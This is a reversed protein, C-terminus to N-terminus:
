SKKADDREGEFDGEQTPGTPQEPKPQPKAKADKIKQLAVEVAKELQPDKGAIRDAPTIDVAIDPKCGNREQNSGDKNFFGSMPIRWNTGDSLRIDFTGIVAGPTQTGVITAMGLTKMAHPFVEADSYSRENILVVIPRDWYLTPQGVKQGTRMRIEAYPKRSLIDILQQHINGGGNDRVDIVLAKCAQVQPTALENQFQQLNPPMMGAIHIYAVQNSSIRTTVSRNKLVWQQYDRQQKQQGSEPTIKVERPNEGEPNDAVVLAIEVGTTGELLAYANDKAAIMKGNIRFIFDGKRIWAKDAPGQADVEDVRLRQRTDRFVEPTISMGLLGTNFQRARITSAFAGSHSASLEGVMRNLYYLYEERTGCSDVLQRYQQVLADWDKGHFKPDYFGQGYAQAAEDFARLMEEKESIEISAIFPIQRGANIAVPAPALYLQGGGRATGGVYFINRGDASFKGYQGQAVTVEGSGMIDTVVVSTEISTQGRVIRNFVILRGDPSFSPVEEIETSGYVRRQNSGDASMIWIDTNGGRASDFAIQSGDPSFCADDDSQPANTLQTAAGGQASVIWIDRNGSRESTFVLKSGDPSWSMFADLAPDNTIQRLGKGDTGVVFIDTNGKVEAFYAIERGNPSIRPMQKRDADSTLQRAQGGDAGLLWIQGNLEFAITKGDASIDASAVGSTFTREVRRPGAADERIVIPLLKPKADAAKLDLSHLYFKWVFYVTGEDASLSFNSLGDQGLRTLQRVQETGVDWAFLEFSGEVERTFYLRKGDKSLRPERTNGDFVHLHEPAAGTLQRFLRDNASGKYEQVKSDSPGDIYYLTSGDDPTAGDRAGTRTLRVETGGDLSLRYLEWDTSLASQLILSKGDATFGCAVEPAAHFTLRRPPGGDIPMIWIDYSGSRDSTFVVSKGDPTVLPRMDFAENLTLRTARGGTTPMSWIDGHLSFVLTQGDPSVSPFRAGPAGDAARMPAVKAAPKAPQETPRATRQAALGSALCALVFFSLAKVIQEEILGHQSGQPGSTTFLGDM